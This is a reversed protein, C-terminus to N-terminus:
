GTRQLETKIGWVPIGWGMRRGAGGGGGLRGRGCGWAPRAWHLSLEIGLQSWTRPTIKRVGDRNRDPSVAREGGGTDGRPTMGSRAPHPPVGGSGPTPSFVAGLACLVKGVGGLCHFGGSIEGIAAPM